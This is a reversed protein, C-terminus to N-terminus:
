TLRVVKPRHSYLINSESFASQGSTRAMSFAIMIAAWSLRQENFFTYTARLYAVIAVSMTACAARLGFASHESRLAEPMLRLANGTRQFVNEPPLHEPDKRLGFAEGVNIKYATSAEAMAHHDDNSTDEKQSFVTGAWKKLLRYSPAILRKSRMTGDAVKADAHQVMELLAKATAHLLHEMYLVTLLQRQHREKRGAEANEYMQSWDFSTDFNGEPLQIGRQECWQHLTVQKTAYFSDIRKTYEEGFGPTGAGSGAPAKEPDTQANTPRRQLELQYLIHEIAEDMASTVEAFPM